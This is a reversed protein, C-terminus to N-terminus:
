DELQYRTIVKHRSLLRQLASEVPGRKQVHLAASLERGTVGNVKHRAILGYVQRDRVPLAEIKPHTAPYKPRYAVRPALQRARRQNAAARAEPAPTATMTGLVAPIASTPVLLFPTNPDVSADGCGLWHGKHDIHATIPKHCALCPGEVGKRIFPKLAESAHVAAVTHARM